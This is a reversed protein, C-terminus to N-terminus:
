RLRIDACAHTNGAHAPIFRSPRLRRGPRLRTGRMRPSSGTKSCYSQQHAIHEGCARPHVPPQAQLRAAQPTNGAHAPIFRDQALRNYRATHTGRMRPSSGAETSLCSRATPHEGCARPHVASSRLAHFQSSTNGAHAPIFRGQAEGTRNRPHTGRMRPSSGLDTDNYVTDNAHEGCARPHVAYTRLVTKAQGTNGAHAPIFRHSPRCAPRLRPTGRMRPSSGGDRALGGQALDHEGCARPHVTTKASRPSLPTTNGAHAPIFRQAILDAVTM